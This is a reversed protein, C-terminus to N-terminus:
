ISPNLFYELVEHSIVSRKLQVNNVDKMDSGAIGHQLLATCYGRECAGNYTFLVCYEASFGSVVVFGIGKAKLIGDLETDWFANCQSKHLVIDQASVDIEDLLEFEPSGPGGGVGVDQILVVPQGNKRFLGSTYNIYELARKMSDKSSNVMCGKQMDVILLAARM